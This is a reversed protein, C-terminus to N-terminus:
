GHGIFSGSRRATTGWGFVGGLDWGWLRSGRRDVLRRPIHRRLQRSRDKWVLLGGWERLRYVWGGEGRPFPALEVM